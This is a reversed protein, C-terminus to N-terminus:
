EAANLLDLPKAAVNRAANVRRHITRGCHQCKCIPDEKYAFSEVEIEGCQSCRVGIESCEVERVRDGYRQKLLQPGLRMTSKKVSAKGDWDHPLFGVNQSSHEVKITEIRALPKVLENYLLHRAQRRAKQHLRGATTREASRPRTLGELAQLEAIKRSLERDRPNDVIHGDSTAGIVDLGMSVGIVSGPIAPTLQRIPVVQRIAAYWGDPERHIAVGQLVRGTPKRGPLKGLFKMGEFKIRCNYHRHQGPREYHPTFDGLEFCMDSRTVLPMDEAHRRFKKRQQGKARGKGDKSKGGSFYHHVVAQLLHASPIVADEPWEKVQLVVERFFQYDQKLPREETSYMSIMDTLKPRWGCQPLKNTAEHVRRKWERAVEHFADAARSSEKPSMGDYNPRQPRPGVLGTREAYAERADIVEQTQKCLWNWCTKLSRQLEVLREEQERTPYIRIVEGRIEYGEPITLNSKM